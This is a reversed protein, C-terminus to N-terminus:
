QHFPALCSSRSSSYLRLRVHIQLYFSLPHPYTPNVTINSPKQFLSVGWPDSSNQNIAALCKILRSQRMEMLIPKSPYISYDYAVSMSVRHVAEIIQPSSTQKCRSSVIFYLNVSSPGQTSNNLFVNLDPDSLFRHVRDFAHAQKM